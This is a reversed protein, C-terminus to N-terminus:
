QSGLSAAAEAERGLQAKAAEVELVKTEGDKAEEAEEAASIDLSKGINAALLKSGM